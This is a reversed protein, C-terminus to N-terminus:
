LQSEQYAQNIISMMERAEQTSNVDPHYKKALNYYATKIETSSSNRSVGLIKWWEANLYNEYNLQSNKVMIQWIQIRNRVDGTILYKGNQDFIVPSCAEVSQLLEQSGLNWLQVTGNINGVAMLKNDPSIAISNINNISNEFTYINKRTKM